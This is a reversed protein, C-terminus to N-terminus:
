SLDVNLVNNDKYLNWNGDIFVDNLQLYKLFTYLNMNYHNQKEDVLELFMEDNLYKIDVIRLKAYFTEESVKIRKNNLKISNNM